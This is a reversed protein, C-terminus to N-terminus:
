FLPSLGPIQTLFCTVAVSHVRGACFAKNRKLFFSIFVYYISFSNLLLDLNSTKSSQQFGEIKAQNSTNPLLQLAVARFSDKCNQSDKGRYPFTSSTACPLLLKPLLVGSSEMVTLTRIKREKCSRLVWAVREWSNPYFLFSMQAAM